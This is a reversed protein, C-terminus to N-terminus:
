RYLHLLVGSQLDMYEFIEERVNIFPHLSPHFCFSLARLPRNVQDTEKM